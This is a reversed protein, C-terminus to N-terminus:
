AKGPWTLLKVKSWGNSRLRELVPALREFPLKADAKIRIEPRSRRQKTAADLQTQLVETLRELTVATEGIALVGDGTILLTLNNENIAQQSSSIPPQVRYLEAPGIRGIVMFFILMLFVVNILPILRTDADGSARSREPFKM